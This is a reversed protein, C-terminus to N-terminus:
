QFTIVVCEEFNCASAHAVTLPISTQVQSLDVSLRTGSSSVVSVIKETNINVSRVTLKVDELKIIVDVKNDYAYVKYEGCDISSLVDSVKSFNNTLSHYSSEKDVYSSSSNLPTADLDRRKITTTPVVFEGDENLELVDEDAM